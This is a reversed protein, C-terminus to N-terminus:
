PAFIRGEALCESLSRYVSQVRPRSFDPGAARLIRRALSGHELIVQLPAHWTGDLDATEILHRWLSGALCAGGKWGLLRLYDIDTVWAGDAKEICDDLIAVLADTTVAQQASLDSHREDYLMRLIAVVAAAIAIDAKPCEQVDILRIEISNREFRPIAGRANLWEHGLLGDSDLPAIERYMPELVKQRYEACRTMTDPIVRGMTSPVKEQHQRYAVLRADRWISPAGDVIPSSAALAPLIPLLVRVAAHLRAFEADNAFPLNLHMSQLNAFGHQRCDFIRDYTQYISVLDHPWLRAERSPDMWPHTATPMLMAQFTELRRNMVTIEYRFGEALSALDPIPQRNKLEIVHLVIENSWALDGHAVENVGRGESDVLLRDAIPQVALTARDVIMYELEIGYGEFVHLVSATTM